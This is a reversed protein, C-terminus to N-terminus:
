KQENFKDRLIELENLLMKHIANVSKTKSNTILKSSIIELVSYTFPIKKLKNNENGDFYYVQLIDVNIKSIDSVLTLPGSTQNNKQKIEYRNSLLFIGKIKNKNLHIKENITKIINRDLQDQGLISFGYNPTPIIDLLILHPYNKEIDKKQLKKDIESLLYENHGTGQIQAANFIRAVEYNENNIVFDSCSKNSPKYSMDNIALGLNIQFLQMLNFCFYESLYKDQIILEFMKSRLLYNEFEMLPGRAEKFPLSISQVYEEKNLTIYEGCMECGVYYVNKSDKYNCLTKKNEKHSPCNPNFCKQPESPLKKFGLQKFKNKM